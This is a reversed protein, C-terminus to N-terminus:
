SSEMIYSLTDVPVEPLVLLLQAVDFTAAAVIVVILLSIQNVFMMGRFTDGDFLNTKVADVDAEVDADALNESCLGGCAGCIFFALVCFIVITTIMTATNLFLFAVMQLIEGLIGFFTALSYVRHSEDDTSDTNGKMSLALIIALAHFCSGVAFCRAPATEEVNCQAEAADPGVVFNAAAATLDFFISACGLFFYFFTRLGGHGETISYGCRMLGYLLAITGPAFLTWLNCCTYFDLFSAILNM